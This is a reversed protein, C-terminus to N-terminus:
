RWPKQNIRNFPWQKKSRGLGELTHYCLGVSVWVQQNDTQLAYRKHIDRAQLHQLLNNLLQVLPIDHHFEAFRVCLHEALEIPHSDQLFDARLM